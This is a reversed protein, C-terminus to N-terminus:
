EYLSFLCFCLKLNLQDKSFIKKFPASALASEIPSYTSITLGSCLTSFDKIMFFWILILVGTSEQITRHSKIYCLAFWKFHNTELFVTWFNKPINIFVATAWIIEFNVFLKVWFSVIHRHKKRNKMLKAVSKNLFAKIWAIAHIYSLNESLKFSTSCNEIFDNSLTLWFATNM